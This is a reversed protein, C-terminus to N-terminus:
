QNSVTDAQILDWCDCGFSKGAAVDMFALPFDELEDQCVSGPRAAQQGAGGGPSGWDGVAVGAGDRPCGGDCRAQGGLVASAPVLVSFGSGDNLM